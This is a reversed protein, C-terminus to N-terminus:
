RWGEEVEVVCGFEGDVAVEVEVEVVYGNRGVVVV